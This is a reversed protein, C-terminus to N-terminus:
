QTADTGRAVMRVFGVYRGSDAHSMSRPNTMWCYNICPHPVAQRRLTGLAIQRGDM